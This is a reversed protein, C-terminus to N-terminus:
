IKRIKGVQSNIFYIGYVNEEYTPRIAVYEGFFHEGVFYKCGKWEICGCASVKRVIDTSVYEIKELKEKYPRKSKQYRNAPCLLNIGDHPRIHNYVYKWEDFCIQAEEFTRFTRFKLIEEKLSRHFREDKGQTQPHYPRSHSVIIGQRMLWITLRSLTHGKWPSGNDMTMRDPLGYERFAEELAFKVNETSESEYARLVLCFRSHDDLVTLPHCRNGNIRFYGKFDMQWLENPASKEFRIFRQRKESERLDIKGQRNLIRNFTSESPVDQHGQNILVQRLKRGGWAPYKERIQLILNIKEDETINPRSNPAKSRDILGEVGEHKYRRIWKYATKRAIGYKQCLTTIKFKGSMLEEIFELRMSQTDKINWPMKLGGKSQFDMIFTNGM